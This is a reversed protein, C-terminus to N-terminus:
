GLSSGVLQKHLALSKASFFMKLEGWNKQKSEVDLLIYWWDVTGAGNNVATM